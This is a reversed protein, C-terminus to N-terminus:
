KQDKNPPLQFFLLIPNDAKDLIWDAPRLLEMSSNEGVNLKQYKKM